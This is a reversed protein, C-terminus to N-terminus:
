GRGPAAPGGQAERATCRARDFEARPMRRTGDKVVVQISGRDARRRMAESNVECREAADRTTFNEM